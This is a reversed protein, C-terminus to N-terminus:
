ARAELVACTGRVQRMRTSFTLRDSVLRALGRMADIQESTLRRPRTDIVCLSGLALGDDDLLPIGLYFRIGPEGTVLPNDAFRPDATADEVVLPEDGLVTYACFAQDRPTECVDLGVQGKFWQRDEDVISVVGIPCGCLASAAAAFDDAWSQHQGDLSPLARLASQRREENEPLPAPPM